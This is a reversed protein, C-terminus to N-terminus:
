RRIPQRALWDYADLGETFVSIYPVTAHQIIDLLTRSASWDRAVVWAVHTIGAQALQPLYDTSVWQELEDWGDYAMSSDCLLRSCDLQQAHRLLIACSELSSAANHTGQWEAQLWQFLEDYGLTFFLSTYLNKIM